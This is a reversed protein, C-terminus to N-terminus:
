HFISVMEEQTLIMRQTMSQLAKAVAEAEQRQEEAAAADDKLNQVFFISAIVQVLPYQDSWTRPVVLFHFSIWLEKLGVQIEVRLATLDEDRENRTQKAAM